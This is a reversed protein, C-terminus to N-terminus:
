LAHHVRDDGGGIIGEHRTHRVEVRKDLRNLNRRGFLQVTTTGIQGYMVQLQSSSAILVDCLQCEKSSNQKYKCSLV